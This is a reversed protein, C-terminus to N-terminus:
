ALLVSITLLNFLKFLRLGRSVYVNWNILSAFYMMALKKVNAKLKQMLLPLYGSIKLIASTMGKCLPPDM